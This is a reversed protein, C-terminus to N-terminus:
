RCWRCSYTVNFLYFMCTRDSANLVVNVFRQKAEFCKSQSCSECTLLEGMTICNRFRNMM